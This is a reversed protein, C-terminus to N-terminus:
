PVPCVGDGEREGGGGEELLAPSNWVSGCVFSELRVRLLAFSNGLRSGGGGGGWFFFFCVCVCVYM